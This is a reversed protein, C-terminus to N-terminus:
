ESFRQLEDGLKELVYLRVVFWRAGRDWFHAPAFTIKRVAQIFLGIKGPNKEDVRRCYPAAPLKSQFASSDYSAYPTSTRLNTEKSSAESDMEETSYFRLSPQNFNTETATSAKGSPVLGGAATSSRMELSPLSSEPSTAGDEVLVDEKCPLDPPEAKVGFSTSSTNPGPEVRRASFSDGCMAQVATAAAETRERTKTNATEDAENAYSRQRADQKLRASLRELLIEMDDHFEDLKERQQELLSNIERFENVPAPQGFGFVEQHVPSNGESVAESKKRLM